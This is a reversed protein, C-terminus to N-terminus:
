KKKKLCFVAYSIRMLSQLESTPEESRLIDATRLLPLSAPVAIGIVGVPLYEVYDGGGGLRALLGRDSEPRMWLGVNDMAARLVALAPAVQTRKASEADQNAQDAALAACLADANEEIMRMARALRDRRVALSVPLDAFFAARQAELM